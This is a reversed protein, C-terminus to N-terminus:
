HDGTPDGYRGVRPAEGTGTQAATPADKRTFMPDDFEDPAFTPLQLESLNPVKKAAQAQHKRLASQVSDQGLIRACAILLAAPPDPQSMAELLRTLMRDQLLLLRDVETLEAPIPDVPKKRPM